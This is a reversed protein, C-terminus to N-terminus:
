NKGTNNIGPLPFVLELHTYSVSVAYVIIGVAYLLTFAAFILRVWVPDIGFWAAIGAAVGGIQRNDPDRYLKGRTKIGPAHRPQETESDSLQDPEGMSAIVEEIHKLTIISLGQEKQQDPLEAIRM